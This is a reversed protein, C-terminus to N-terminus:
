VRALSKKKREEAETPVTSAMPLGPLVPHSRYVPPLEVARSTDRQRGSRGPLEPVTHQHDRYGKQEVGRVKSKYTNCAPM